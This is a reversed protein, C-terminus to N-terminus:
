FRYRLIWVGRRAQAPWHAFWKGIVRITWPIQAAWAQASPETLSEMARAGLQEEVFTLRPNLREVDHPDDFGFGHYDKPFGVARLIGLL